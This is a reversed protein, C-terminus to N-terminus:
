RLSFPQTIGSQPCRPRHSSAACLTRRFAQFSLNRTCLALWTPPFYQSNQVASYPPLTICLSARPCRLPHVSWLYAGSPQQRRGPPTTACSPHSPGAISGISRLYTNYQLPLASPFSTTRVSPTRPLHGEQGVKPWLNQPAHHTDLTTRSSVSVSLPFM